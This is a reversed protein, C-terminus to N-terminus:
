LCALSEGGLSGHANMAAECSNMAPKARYILFLANRERFARASRPRKRCIEKERSHADKRLKNKHLLFNQRFKRNCLFLGLLLCAQKVWHATRM